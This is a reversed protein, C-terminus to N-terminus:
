ITEQRELGVLVRDIAGPEQLFMAWEALGEDQGGQGGPSKFMPRILGLFPEFFLLAQGGIPALPKYAELFLIAPAELGRDVIWGVLREVMQEHGQAVETVEGRSM